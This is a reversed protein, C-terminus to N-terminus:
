KRIRNWPKMQLIKGEQTFLFRARPLTFFQWFMHPLGQPDDIRDAFTEIRALGSEVLNKLGSM